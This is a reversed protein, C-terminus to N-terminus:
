ERVSRATDDARKSGSTATRRRGRRGQAGEPAAAVVLHRRGRAGRGHLPRAAPLAQPTRACRTPSCASWSRISCRSAPRRRPRSPAAGDRGRRRGGADAHADARARRSAAAPRAAAAKERAEKERAKTRAAAEAADALKPDAGLDYEVVNMGPQASATLERWVSGNEDKIAITAPRRRGEVLLRHAGAVDERPWTIWPISATAAARTAPQVAKIPFAHLPRAWAGGATLKRLPAAEAVYVSRGHTAVVLDGERPISWCTTSPSTPSAARWAGDLDQRTDLSVFVGCTPASM